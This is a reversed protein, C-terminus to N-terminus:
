GESDLSVLQAEIRARLPEHQPPLQLKGGLEEMPEDVAFGPGETAVEFIVGGPIRFYISHFYQRDIMQTTATGAAFLRNSVERQTAEDPVRWAVHHVTGAGMPQHQGQADDILELRRGPGGDDLTFLRRDGEIDGTAFGLAGALFEGTAEATPVRLTVTDVTRIAHGPTVGDGEWAEGVDQVEGEVIGLEMGDPDTFELRPRDFRVSTAFQVGAAGLRDQWYGMSGFPVALVTRRIEGTGHTARAAMPHPFHTLLSGPTGVADGYYLHYTFPDDFNVTRKIFRLGLVGGYFGLNERPGKALATVHHIGTILAPKTAPTSAM